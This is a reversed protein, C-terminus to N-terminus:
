SKQNEDDGCEAVLKKIIEIKREATKSSYDKLLSAFESPSYEVKIGYNQASSLDVEFIEHNLIKLAKSADHWLGNEPCSDFLIKRASFKDNQIAFRLPKEVKEKCFFAIYVNWRAIKTETKYLLAVVNQVANWKQELQMSTNVWCVICSIFESDGATFLDFGFEPFEDIVTQLRESSVNTLNM